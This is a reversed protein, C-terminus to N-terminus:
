KPPDIMRIFSDCYEEIRKQWRSRADTHCNYAVAHLAARIKDYKEDSLNQKSHKKALNQRKKADNLASKMREFERLFEKRIQILKLKDKGSSSNIKESLLRRVVKAKSKTKTVMLPSESLGSGLTFVSAASSFSEIVAL